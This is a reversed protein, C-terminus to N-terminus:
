AQLLVGGAYRVRGAILLYVWILQELKLAASCQHYTIRVHERMYKTIDVVWGDILVIVRREQQIYADLQARDWGQAQPKAIEDVIEFDNDLEEWGYPLHDKGQAHVYAM